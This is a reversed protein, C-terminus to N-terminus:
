GRAGCSGQPFARGAPDDRRELRGPTHRASRAAALAIWGGRVTGAASATARRRATRSQPVVGSGLQGHLCLGRRGDPHQLPRPTTEIREKSKNLLDRLTEKATREFEAVFEENEQKLIGLQARLVPLLALSYDRYVRKAEDTRVNSEALESEFREVFDEAGSEGQEIIVRELIYRISVPDTSLVRGEFEFSHEKGPAPAPLLDLARRTGVSEVLHLNQRITAYEPDGPTLESLRQRLRLSESQLEEDSLAEVLEPLATMLTLDHKEQRQIAGGDAGHWQQIVHTLEHALLRKGASTGPAYQARGFVIDSGVTFAQAKVAEAMNGATDGMHLRVRSFDTDFRSEFFFRDSQSLPQGGGSM